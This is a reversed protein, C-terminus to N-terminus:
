QGTQALLEDQRQQLEDTWIGLEKYFKIAGDHYPVVFNEDLMNERTWEKLWNDIAVLEDNHEYCAKITHYVVDESVNTSSALMLPYGYAVTPEELIGQPEVVVLKAGKIYEDIIAQKEPPIGKRVDEPTYDAFPLVKLKVAQDTEVTSASTATGGHCAVVQGDKILELGSSVDPVPVVKVDDWTLGM